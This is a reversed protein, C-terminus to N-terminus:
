RHATTSDRVVLKSPSVIRTDSAASGALLDLLLRAATAGLERLPAAVSTLAPNAVTCAPINDFGIICKDEPVSRGAARIGRMLGLAMLDNHAIVGAHPHALVEGAAAHGGEFTARYHGILHADIGLEMARERLARWRIGGTWSEEPGAVFLITRHGLEALHDVAARTGGVNDVIVAPVGRVLRNVLVLPRTLAIGLISRDDTLPSTLILGDVGSTRRLAKRERDESELTDVLQLTYDERVAVDQVGRTVLGYYPNSVDHVLLGIVQNGSLDPTRVARARYGLQEAVEHVHRATAANVRDPRSFTRSVTSPSVGAEHAVDYISVPREM